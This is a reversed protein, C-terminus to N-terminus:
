DQEDFTRIEEDIDLERNMPGRRLVSREERRQTVGGGVEPITAGPLRVLMASINDKSGKDLSLDLMEEALLGMSQERSGFVERINMIAEENSMVDWLGDCALLLVEDSATREHLTVDPFPSVKQKHPPLDINKYGFDGLARSVALDGDVRNWQVFGGASEIRERELPNVPKHDFSLAKAGGDVGLVCRSDGANACIIFRPTVMATVSTCGSTDRGNTTGQYARLDADINVFAETLARGVLEVDDVGDQLYTQWPATAEIAKVFNESAYKAAGAGAHGDWVGLFLHDPKSPMDIAIHSDEMEVRWGQMGSGGCFLGTSSVYEESDKETKPREL